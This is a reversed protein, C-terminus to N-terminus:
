GAETALSVCPLIVAGCCAALKLLIYKLPELL